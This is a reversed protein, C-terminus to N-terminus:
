EHHEEQEEARNEMSWGGITILLVIIGVISMTFSTVAGIAILGLGSALLIPWFSPPPVHPESHNSM